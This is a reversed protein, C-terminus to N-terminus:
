LRWGMELLFTRQPYPHFVWARNNSINDVGASLRFHASIDWNVRADLAFLESTYGFTDGRQLGFLDTNPRSAYRMGLATQVTDSVSYRLNANIRWRPIRPFQVGEAASNARNRLTKSDIWAVNAEIDMGPLPWDKTEAIAEVGWQRTRDINKFGSRIVNNQNFGSFSFITDKVRQYFVSGTLTVPGLDRRVLLNADRSKEPKLNIDFSNPDFNGLSDLSGQYLEGVTPFRTALALSLQLVTGDLDIQGSLTPSLATDHRSAYQYNLSPTLLGGDYARWDDYRLGATIQADPTIHWVDEAWASLIRTKGYTETTLATISARSRWNGLSYNRTDTRYFSATSGLAVEHAAGKREIAVDATWWGTPGAEALRGAKNDRGAIYGNSTFGKSTVIQYTSLAARAEWGNGLEAGIKAGLLFEDRKTISWNAGSATYNTSGIRVAGECVANGATDRLYCDPAHQDDKNNWWAFLLQGTIAGDDYSIKIKGQKQTILAPSQAAFVPSTPTGPSNPIASGAAIAELQKPDVIAGTVPTTGAGGPTLGYFSMPQGENRFYRATVRLSWPGDKQKLGFGAEASGGWYSDDTSFQRYPQVMGQVKAFAETEKPSRTTINVIGGMSNGVYRSSYPGYVIDFQQVEGPGVVGWKPSFGFSNGLFNSVVFGDVMVLTRASQTSHTGRFGPVGNSDGSYRKRVFFNPAYKMLDETNFANIASFQEEGLSVALGRPAIEIPADRQGVVLIADPADAPADDAFAPTSLCLAVALAAYSTKM